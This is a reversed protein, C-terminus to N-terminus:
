NDGYLQCSFMRRGEPCICIIVIHEATCALGNSILLCNKQATLGNGLVDFWPLSPPVNSLEGLLNHVTWTSTLLGVMTLLFWHAHQSERAEREEKKRHKPYVFVGDRLWISIIPHHHPTSSDFTELINWCWMSGLVTIVNQKTKERQRKPTNTRIKNQSESHHVFAQFSCIHQHIQCQLYFGGSGVREQSLTNNTTKNWHTGSHIM